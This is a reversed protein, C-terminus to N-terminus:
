KQPPWNRAFRLILEFISPNNGDGLVVKRVDNPRPPGQRAHRERLSLRRLVDLAEGLEKAAGPEFQKRLEGDLIHRKEKPRTMGSVARAWEAITNGPWNPRGYSNRLWEELVIEVAEQYGISTKEPRQSAQKSMAVESKVLSDIADTPIEGVIDGLRAYIEQRADIERQAERDASSELLLEALQEIATPELSSASDGILASLESSFAPTLQTETVAGDALGQNLKRTGDLYGLRRTGVRHHCHARIQDHDRWDRHPSSGPKM